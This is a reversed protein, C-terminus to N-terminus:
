KNQKTTWSIKEKLELDAEQRFDRVLHVRYAHKLAAKVPGEKLPLPTPKEAPKAWLSTALLFMWLFKMGKLVGVVSKKNASVVSGMSSWATGPSVFVM